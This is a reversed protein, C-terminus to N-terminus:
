SSAWRRRSRRSRTSAEASRRTWTSSGSPRGRRAKPRRRRAASRASPRLTSQMARLREVPAVSAEDRCASKISAAAERFATKFQNLAGRQTETLQLSREIQAAPWEESAPDINCIGGSGTPTDAKTNTRAMALSPRIQEMMMSAPVLVASMVDGIGHGRLRESYEGPWLTFGVVDEFATPWALPGAFGLRTQGRIPQIAAPNQPNEPRGLAANRQSPARVAVPPTPTAAPATAATAPPAAPPAAANPPTAATTAAPPTVPAPAAVTAPASQVPTAVPAPAVAVAPVAAAAPAPQVPPIPTPKNVAAVSDQVGAPAAGPAAVPIKEATAPAAPTTPTAAKDTQGEAVPKAEAPSGAATAAVAATGVVAAGAAVGATSTAAPQTQVVAPARSRAARRSKSARRGYRHVGLLHGLPRTIEGLIGPLQASAPKPVATLATTAALLALVVMLGCRM